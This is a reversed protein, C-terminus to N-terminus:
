SENLLGRYETVKIRKRVKNLFVTEIYLIQALCKRPNVHHASLFFKFLLSRGERTSDFIFSIAFM